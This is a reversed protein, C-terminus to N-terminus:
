YNWQEKDSGEQEGSFSQNEKKIKLFMTSITQLIAKM